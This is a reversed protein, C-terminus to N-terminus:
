GAVHDARSSHPRLRLAGGALGFGLIMLAWSTPEPVGGTASAVTVSTPNFAAYYAFTSPDDVDIFASAGGCNLSVGCGSLSVIRSFAVDLSAPPLPSVTMGGLSREEFSGWFGDNVEQIRGTTQSTAADGYYGVGQHHTVGNITIWADTIPSATGIVTGGLVEDSTASTFRAGLSTDYTFGQVYALGALDSGPKGFVGAADWGSVVTGEFTAIMSSASAPAGTLLGAAVLAGALVTNRKM